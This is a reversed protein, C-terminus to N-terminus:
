EKEYMYDQGKSYWEDPKEDATKKGKFDSYDAEKEWGEKFKQKVVPSPTPKEKYEEWHYVIPEPEVFYQIM